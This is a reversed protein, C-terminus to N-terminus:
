SAEQNPKETGDEDYLHILGAPPLGQRKAEARILERLLGSQTRQERQMMIRLLRKEDETIRFHIFNKRQAM